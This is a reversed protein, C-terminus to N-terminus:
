TWKPGGGMRRSGISRHTQAHRSRAASTATTSTSNCSLEHAGISTRPPTAASRAATASSGTTACPRDERAASRGSLRSRAVAQGDTQGDSHTVTMRGTTFPKPLVQMGAEHLFPGYGPLAGTVFVLRKLVRLCLLQIEKYLGLGDM